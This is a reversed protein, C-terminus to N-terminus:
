AESDGGSEQSLQGWNDGAKQVRATLEEDTTTPTPAWHLSDTDDVYMIAVLVFTKATMASTLRAGHDMHRYTRVIMSQSSPFRTDGHLERTM